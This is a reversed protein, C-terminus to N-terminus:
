WRARDVNAILSSQHTQPGPSAPSQDPKATAAPDLPRTAAWLQQAAVLAARDVQAKRAAQAAIAHDHHERQSISIGLLVVGSAIMVAATTDIAARLRRRGKKAQPPGSTTM